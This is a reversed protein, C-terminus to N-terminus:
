NRCHEIMGELQGCRDCVQIAQYPYFSDQEVSEVKSFNHGFTDCWFLLLKYFIGWTEKKNLKYCGLCM